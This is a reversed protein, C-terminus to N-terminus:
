PLIGSIVPRVCDDSKEGQTYQNKAGCPSFGIYMFFLRIMSGNTRLRDFPLSFARELPSQTRGTFHCSMCILEAWWEHGTDQEHIM